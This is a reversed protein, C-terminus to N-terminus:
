QGNSERSEKTVFALWSTLLSNISMAAVILRYALGPLSRRYHKEYFERMARHSERIMAPRRQRTSAGGVHIVEAAPTFYVKWGKQKARYCWDVENFFIPFQEDFLGVDHLAARSMLLCSGMPQDVEAESAYDFYTMRYRGFLRSKPFLRSLKAYEFLVALPDPFSRCSREVRGDPGVLRCGVAAADPHAEAFEVLADLTGPSVEVDPNLLLVYRGQSAEIGQNNGRAYGTNERNEILQVEAFEQRVMEASGDASANDIVIVELERDPPDARIASLCRRLYDKTNWNVAVISLDM